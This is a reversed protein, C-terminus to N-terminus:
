KDLKKKIKIVKKKVPEKKPEEKKPESKKMLKKLDSEPIEANYGRRTKSKYHTDEGEGVKTFVRDFMKKVEEKKMKSIGSIVLDDRIYKNHLRLHKKMLEVTLKMIYYIVM